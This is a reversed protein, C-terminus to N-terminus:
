KRRQSRKRPRSAELQALLNVRQNHLDLCIYNVTDRLRNFVNVHNCEYLDPKCDIHTCILPTGANLIACCLEQRAKPQVIELKICLRKTNDIHPKRKFNLTPCESIFHPMDEPGQGCLLCVDSVQHQNFAPIGGRQETFLTPRNTNAESPNHPSVSTTLCM